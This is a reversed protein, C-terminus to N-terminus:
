EVHIPNKDWWLPHHWDDKGGMRDLAEQYNVSNYKKELIPYCLRLPTTLNDDDYTFDSTFKPLKTRDMLVPYDSRRLNAWAEAPNMMHLIWAQTNIAEKPNTEFMSGAAVLGKVFDTIETEEIINDGGLYHVNLLKISAKVGEEFHSQSTGTVNWGKTIAEALLFEMEASTVLIGPRDPQCFDISLFPRMMRAPFNNKLLGAEPYKQCLNYLTPFDTKVVDESPGNVWNNWWAAGPNCPNDDKEIKALYALTEDTLDINLNDPNIESRMVNLYHRCIRYLRPDNSEKMKNFFTTCIFTPSTPDQGYLIEGLANVRFDYDRSGDYLTFSSKQYRIYADDKSSVIYGAADQFADEFETKARDPLVDSIRMAFRMRLSNAYKKWKDTDGDYNTVDGTIPDNGTGLQAVCAKLEKFFFNYIDEQKDFVPTPTGANPAKDINELCPIDGYIDTMVSLLYVTHIRLVANLNPKDASNVIADRLNKLAINFYQDWLLRAQEDNYHVSGAYNTVNWGGSFHQTFGTVYSRYTDMLGFDGYTQLLCTTLQSNPDTSLTKTYDTNLGEMHGDSCSALGVVIGCCVFGATLYKKINKTIM